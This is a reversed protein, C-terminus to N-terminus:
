PKTYRSTIVVQGNPQVATEFTQSAPDAGVETIHDRCFNVADIVYAVLEPIQHVETIQPTIFRTVM